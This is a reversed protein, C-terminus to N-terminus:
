CLQNPLIDLWIWFGVVRLRSRGLKCGQSDEPGTCDHQHVLNRLASQRHSEPFAGPADAAAPHHKGYETCLESAPFAADRRGHTDCKGAALDAKMKRCEAKKRGKKQRYRCEGEFRSAAEEGREKGKSGEKSKCKGGKGGRGKDSRPGSGSGQRAQNVNVHVADVQMANPDTWTRRARSYNIIEDRLAQRTALRSISLDIHQKLGKTDWVEVFLETSSQMASSIVPSSSMSPSTVSLHSLREHWTQRMTNVLDDSCCHNCCRETDSVAGPECEWLLKRWVGAGTGESSNRVIELAQDRLMMVLM